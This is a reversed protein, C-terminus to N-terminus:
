FASGNAPGNSAGRPAPAARAGRRPRSFRPQAPETSAGAGPGQLLLEGEAARVRGRACGCSTGRRGRLGRGARGAGGRGRPREGAGRPWEGVAPLPPDGRLRARHQPDRQPRLPPPAAPPRHGQPLRRARRRQPRRAAAAAATAGHHCRPGPAKRGAGEPAGWPGKPGAEGVPPPTVPAPRQAFGPQPVHRSLPAAGSCLAGLSTGLASLPLSPLFPRPPRLRRLGAGRAPPPCCPPSFALPTHSERSRTRCVRM